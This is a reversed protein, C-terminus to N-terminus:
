KVVTKQKKIWAKYEKSKVFEAYDPIKTLDDLKIEFVKKITDLQSCVKAWQKQRLYLSTLNWYPTEYYEDLEIAKRFLIEADRVKNQQFAIIGKLDELYADNYGLQREINSTRKLLAEYKKSFMLPAIMMLDLSPNNSQYKEFNLVANKFEKSEIGKTFAAQYCITLFAKDRQYREPLLKYLRLVEDYKQKKFAEMVKLYIDFEKKKKAQYLSVIQLTARGVTKTIFEGGSFAYIDVIGPKGNRMTLLLKHYNVMDEDPGLLRLVLYLDKGDKQFGLFTYYSKQRRFIKVLSFNQKFGKEYGAALKPPIQFGRTMRKMFDDVDFSQDFFKGDGTNVSQIAKEAFDVYQKPVKELPLNEMAALCATMSLVAAALIFKRM